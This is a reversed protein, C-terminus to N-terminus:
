SNKDSGAERVQLQRDCVQDVLAANHSALVITKGDVVQTRLILGLRDVHDPDLRQEPEDLLLIDFSRSLTLALAFLQSQGTSLEHPYRSSLRSIGFRHLLDEAQGAAADPSSNWSAAVLALHERVTLNSATPTSGIQAAVRARFRPSKEDPIMEAVTVRGSSPRLRGSLVRLLTTKGAGNPGLVALAEGSKVHFTTPTLLTQRDFAVSVNSADILPGM